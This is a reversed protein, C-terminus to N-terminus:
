INWGGSTVRNETIVMGHMLREKTYNVRLYVPLYCDFTEGSGDDKSFKVLWPGVNPYQATFKSFTKTGTLEKYVNTVRYCPREGDIADDTWESDSTDTTKTVYASAAATGKASNLVALVPTRISLQNRADITMQVKSLDTTGKQMVNIYNCPTSGLYGIITSSNDMVIRANPSQTTGPGATQITAGTITSGSGSVTLNGNQDMNSNTANWVIGSASASFITDNRNTTTNHKTVLINKNGADLTIGASYTDDVSKLTNNDIKWGGIKGGTATVTGTIEAEKAYLKGGNTVYFKEDNNVKVQIRRDASNSGASSLTLNGSSLTDKTISWGGITGSNATLVGANTVSFPNGGKTSDYKGLYIGTTANIYIGDSAANSSTKGSYLENTKIIFGGTGDEAKCGIRGETAYIVGNVELGSSDLILRKHGNSADNFEFTGDTLNIHVGANGSNKNSSTEYNSSYIDGGVIMSGGVYGAVLYDAFVGFRSETTFSINGDSLITPFNVDGRGVSMAVTRWGDDTYLMRGGGLYIADYDDHEDRGHDGTTTTIWVGTDDILTENDEANALYYSQSLLGDALAKGISDTDEAAASWYSSNFSVSTAASTAANLADTVDTFINRAKKMVNGFTVSFNSQDLFDISIELIKVKVSYDDRLTVWVYNGIDFDGSYNDFEPIAFLNILNASFQIQPAAVKALEKEGYDLLAYLMEFREDETMSDTVLFNSSTLEEERIFASLEKLQAVTFNNRMATKNVIVTKDTQIVEMDSKLSAVTNNVVKIQASLANYMYLSPLYTDIYRAKPNNADSGPDGYGAKMAVAQLKEASAQLTKLENLCCNTWINVNVWSGNWRYMDNSNKILYLVNGNGNTPLSTVLQTSTQREFVIKDSGDETYSITGYGPNKRTNIGYPLLTSTWKSIQTYYYQYKQTLLTFAEKYSKGQLEARTIVGTRYTFLNLDVESDILAMWANFADLLSASMYEESAYCTFNYITDNGMCLERVDIDDEGHLVMATKVNDISYSMDTNELLNNYSVHVNSDKGYNEEEYANITCNLSDFTIVCEFASIVDSMLFSYVDQRTVSFSRQMTYLASDVHGISWRPLKELILHLLSHTQDGPQYFKVGDIAGTEGTNIVFDQLYKQGLECERSQCEVKKYETKQGENVMEVDKITFAAGISPVEIYKMIDILDYFSTNKGDLMFPIEFSLTDMDNFKKVWVKSTSTLAGVREGSAKVLILSPNELHGLTDRTINM